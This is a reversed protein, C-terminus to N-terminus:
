PFKTIAQSLSTHFLLKTIEISSILDIEEGIMYDLYVAVVILLDYFHRKSLKGITLAFFQLSDVKKWRALARFSLKDIKLSLQYLWIKVNRLRPKSWQEKSEKKDKVVKLIEKEAYKLIIIM